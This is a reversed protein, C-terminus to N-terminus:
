IGSQSLTDLVPQVSEFREPMYLLYDDELPMFKAVRSFEVVGGPYAMAIATFVAATNSADM